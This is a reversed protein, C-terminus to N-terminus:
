LDTGRGGHLHHSDKADKLYNVGAEETTRKAFASRAPRSKPRGRATLAGSPVVDPLQRSRSAGRETLAGSM